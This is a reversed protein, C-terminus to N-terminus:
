LIFREIAVAVGDDDVVPAVMRGGEVHAAQGQAGPPMGDFEGQDGHFDVPVGAMTEDIAIGSGSRFSAQYTWTGPRSPSFHARWM